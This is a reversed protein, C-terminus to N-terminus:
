CCFGCGCIVEEGCCGCCCGAGGGGGGDDDWASASALVLGSGSGSAASTVAAVGGIIAPAFPFGSEVVDGGPEEAAILLFRLFSPRFGMM